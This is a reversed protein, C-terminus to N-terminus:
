PTKSQQDLIFPLLKIEFSDEVVEGDTTVTLTVTEDEMGALWGPMVWILNWIYFNDWIVPFCPFVAEPPEFSLQTKFYEFSTENGAIVLLVPLPVWRSKWLIDPTIDVPPLTTTTTSSLTSFCFEGSVADVELPQQNEDSIQVGDPNQDRCGEVPADRSVDYNLTLVPGTGKDILAGGGIDVLMVTCCDYFEETPKTVENPICNFDSTRGTIECEQCSLYNDVDCITLTITKVKDNPNDLSIVMENGSSGPSGSGNGVTLTVDAAQSWSHCFSLFCVCAIIQLALKGRIKGIMKNEQMLLLVQLLVIKALIL